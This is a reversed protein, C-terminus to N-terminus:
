LNFFIMFLFRFCSTQMLVLTGCYHKNKQISELGKPILTPDRCIFFKLCCLFNGSLMLFAFSIILSLSLSLALCFLYFVYSLFLHSFTCISHLPSCMLFLSLCCLFLCFWIEVLWLYGYVGHKSLLNVV